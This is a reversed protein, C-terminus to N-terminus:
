NESINPKGTSPRFIGDVLKALRDPYKSVNPHKIKAINLAADLYRLIDREHTTEGNASAVNRVWVEIQQCLMRLTRREAPPLSQSAIEQDRAELKGDLDAPIIEATEDDVSGRVFPKLAERLQRIAARVNAANMPDATIIPNATLYSNIAEQTAQIVLDSLTKVKEPVREAYDSPIGLSALKPPLLKSLQRWQDSGFRFTSRQIKEIAPLPGPPKTFKARPL